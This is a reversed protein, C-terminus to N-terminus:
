PNSCNLTARTGASVVTTQLTESGCHFSITCTKPHSPNPNYVKLDQASCKFSCAAKGDCQSSVASTVEIVRDPGEEASGYFARRVSIKGYDAQAAASLAAAVTLSGITLSLVIRHFM